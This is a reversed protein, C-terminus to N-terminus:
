RQGCPGVFGMRHIAITELSMFNWSARFTSIFIPNSRSACTEKRMSWLSLIQLIGSAVKFMTLITVVIRVTTLVHRETEHM